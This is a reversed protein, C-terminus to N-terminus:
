RREYSSTLQDFLVAAILLTGLFIDQMFHSQQLLALGNELVSLIAVAVFTGFLGGRGGSLRTGGLVVATVVALLYTQGVEPSAASLQATTLVGAFAGLLGSMVYLGMRIRHTNIGARAAAEENDGIAYIHRGVATQRAVVLGILFTVVFFVFVWPLQQFISGQLFSYFASNVPVSQFGAITYSLGLLISYMGLTTVLPNVDLKVIIVGIVLGVAAGAFLVVVTAEITNLGHVVLYSIVASSCAVVSGVSIDIGGALVLLTQGVALIGLIASIQAIISWNSVSMFYPSKIWFFATLAILVVLLGQNQLLRILDRRRELATQREGELGLLHDDVAVESAHAADAM